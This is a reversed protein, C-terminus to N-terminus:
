NMQVTNKIKHKSKNLESTEKLIQKKNKIINDYNCFKIFESSIGSLKFFLVKTIKILLVFTSKNFSKNSKNNLYM